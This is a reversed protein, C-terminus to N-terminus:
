AAPPQTRKPSFAKAGATTPTNPENQRAPSEPPTTRAPRSKRKLSAENQHSSRALWHQQHTPNTKAPPHSQHSREHQSQNQRHFPVPKTKTLAHPSDAHQTRKPARTIPPNTRAPKSKRTLSAENQRSRPTLWCRGAHQTRKPSFAIPPKTRAAKIERHFPRTPSAENRRPPKARRRHDTHQTRETSFAIPPKTKPSPACPSTQFSAKGAPTQPVNQTDPMPVRDKRSPTKPLARGRHPAYCALAFFRVPRLFPFLALHGAANSNSSNSLATFRNRSCIGSACTISM